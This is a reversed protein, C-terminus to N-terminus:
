YDWSTMSLDNRGHYYLSYRKQLNVILFSCYHGCYHKEPKAYHRYKENYRPKHPWQRHFIRSTFMCFLFYLWVPKLLCSKTGAKHQCYNQKKNLRKPALMYSCNKIHNPRITKIMVIMPKTGKASLSSGSRKKM